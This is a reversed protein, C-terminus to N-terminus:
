LVTQWGPAPLTRNAQDVTGRVRRSSKEGPGSERSGRTQAPTAQPTTTDGRGRPDHVGAGKLGSPSKMDRFVRTQSQNRLAPSLTPQGDRVEGFVGGDGSGLWDPPPRRRSSSSPSLPIAQRRTM